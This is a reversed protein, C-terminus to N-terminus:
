AVVNLTGKMGQSAHGRLTCYFEYSGPSLGEVTFTGREGLALRDSRALPLGDSGVITLDHQLDAARVAENLDAETQMNVLFLTASDTRVTVESPAYACCVLEVIPVNSPAVAVSKDTKAVLLPTSTSTSSGATGESSAAENGSSREDDAGCAGVALVVLLLSISWAWRVRDSPVLAGVLHRRRRARETPAALATSSSARRTPTDRM